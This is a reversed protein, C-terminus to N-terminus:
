SQALAVAVVLARNVNQDLIFGGLVPTGAGLCSEPDGAILYSLCGEATNLSAHSQMNLTSHFCAGRQSCTFATPDDVVKYSMCVTGCTTQKHCAPRATNQLGNVLSGFLM